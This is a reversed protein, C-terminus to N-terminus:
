EEIKLQRRVKEAAGEWDYGGFAMMKQAQPSGAGHLELVHYHGAYEDATKDRVYNYLRLRQEATAADGGDLYKKFADHLDPHKYDTEWPQTTIIAGGIDILYKYMEMIKDTFLYKGVNTIVGNPVAMNDQYTSTIAATQVFADLSSALMAMEFLHDKIHPAGLVGNYQALLYGTGAMMEAEHAQSCLASYRLLVGLTRAIESSLWDEGNQIVREWPVFVDDFWVFCEGGVNDHSVPYEWETGTMRRPRMILKVGPANPPVACSISYDSEDPKMRKTPMVILEHMFAADTIHAKMGRIVIGDDREAVKHVYMDPDQQQGPHKARDGKTDSMAIAMILDEERFRRYLKDVNEKYQPYAEALKPSVLFLSLISDSLGLAGSYGNEAGIAFAKARQLLDDSNQPPILFLDSPDGTEPDDAIFIDKVQPDHFRNYAHAQHLAGKRTIPHTVVNDIKVGDAYVVRGDQISELYEEPTKFTKAM